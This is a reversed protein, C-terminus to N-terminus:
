RANKQRREVGGAFFFRLRSPPELIHSPETIKQLRGEAVRTKPALLEEPRPEIRLNGVYCRESRTVIFQVAEAIEDAEIEHKQIAERQEEASAEQM